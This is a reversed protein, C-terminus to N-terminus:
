SKTSNPRRGQWYQVEYDIAFPEGWLIRLGQVNVEKEFNILVWQPNLANDEGTFHADLYPNSKWFSAEDDDDLRSYGDHNAQDHTNGRRPLKYGYSSLIPKEATASSTWYGQAHEPDSWSGQPNWHWVAAGLETRLRYALRYFPISALEKVSEPSYTRDVDGKQHGDLAAGLAESPIVQAAAEKTEIVISAAESAQLHGRQVFLLM